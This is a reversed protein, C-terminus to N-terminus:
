DDVFQDSMLGAWVHKLSRWCRLLSVMYSEHNACYIAPTDDGPVNEWGEIQM